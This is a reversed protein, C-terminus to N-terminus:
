TTTPTAGRPNLPISDTAISAQIRSATEGSSHENVPVFRSSAASLPQSRVIPRTRSPKATPSAAASIAQSADPM